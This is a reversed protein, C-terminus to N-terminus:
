FTRVVECLSEGYFKSCKEKIFTWFSGINRTKPGLLILYSQWFDVRNKRKKITLFEFVVEYKSKQYWLNNSFGGSKKFYLPRGLYNLFHFKSVITCLSRRLTSLRPKIRQFSSFSLKGVCCVEDRLEEYIEKYSWKSIWNTSSGLSVRTYKHNRSNTTRETLNTKTIKIYEVKVHLNLNHIDKMTIALGALGSEVLCSLWRKRFFCFLTTKRWSRCLTILTM